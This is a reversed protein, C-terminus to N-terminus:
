SFSHCVDSLWVKLPHTASKCQIEANTSFNINLLIKEKKSFNGGPTVYVPFSFPVSLLFWGSEYSLRQSWRAKVLLKSGGDM